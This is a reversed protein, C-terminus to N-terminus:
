DARTLYTRTAHISAGTHLAAVIAPILHLEEPGLRAGCVLQVPEGNADCVVSQVWQDFASACVFDVLQLQGALVFVVVAPVQLFAACAAAFERSISACDRVGARLQALYGPTVSLEHALGPLDLGRHWAEELLWGMLPGGPSAYLRKWRESGSEHRTGDDAPLKM